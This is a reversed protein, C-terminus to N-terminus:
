ATRTRAAPRTFECDTWLGSGDPGRHRQIETMRLLADADGWNVAGAIGCM